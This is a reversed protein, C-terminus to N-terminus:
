LRKAVQDIIEDFSRYWVRSIKEIQSAGLQLTRGNKNIKRSSTICGLSIKYTGTNEKAYNLFLQPKARGLIHTLGDTRSFLQSV